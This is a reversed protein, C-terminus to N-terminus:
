SERLLITTIENVSHKTLDKGIEAVIRSIVANDYHKRLEGLTHPPAVVILEEFDGSQALNGVLQAAEAAVRDKGVQHFDTQELASRLSGSSAFARGPQDAGQDHTPPNDREGSGEFRLVPKSFDGVNRLMLFKSGDAVLVLTDHHINVYDCEM